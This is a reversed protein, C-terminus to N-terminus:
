RAGGGADPVAGAPPASAPRVSLLEVDFKLLSGPPIPPPSDNGYALQPPIFLQWKAGPKMLVLAETWGPIVKSVTFTAPEGRKYSSDFETGDLLTGRYNVTVDDTPRPSPGRGASLVRYQLGSATTVVGKRKANEVLFKRAEAENKGASANRGQVAVQVLDKINQQDAASPEVTGKVVDRLGQAVKDFAISDSTLGLQQLQAGLLVGLSYSGKDKVTHTSQASASTGRSGAPAAGQ